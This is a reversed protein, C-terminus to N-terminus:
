YALVLEAFVHTRLKDGYLQLFGKGPVFLASGAKAKMHNNLFPRYFVAASLDWGIRRSISDLQRLAELSETEAFMLYNVNSILKLKPTLEFDCALNMVHIGPNVFNAQGEERGSNLNALFSRKNTLGVGGGAVFPIFQRNWYSSDAGAFQPAEVVADFGTARDDFPDRDGSAFFYSIKPRLWNIDYSVELAFQAALIDVKRGAIANHSEEGFVGYLSHTLNWRGWHGDGNLGLYTSRISKSRLDGISAPRVLFGNANYRQHSEGHDQRHLVIGQLTHGLIVADQFYLNAVYVDERRDDLIRNLGSNTDKELRRFYALNYQFHNNDANGFFRLGPEHSIFLFGRFDANFPQVGLRSSVFDYRASIDALHYDLFLEQIGLYHDWRTPKNEPNINLVGTEQAHATNVNLAPSFRFEFNPPKFTTNGQILALSAQLIQAGGMIRGKGLLDLSNPSETSVGGVPVPINLVEAATTSTLGIELFWPNRMSGFIPLDGKLINTRYPNILNDKVFPKWRNPITQFENQPNQLDLTEKTTEKKQPIPRSLPQALIEDTLLGLLVLALLLRFFDSTRVFM